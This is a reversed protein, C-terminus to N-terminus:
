RAGKPDPEFVGDPLLDIAFLMHFSQAAKGNVQAAALRMKTEDRILLPHDRLAAYLQQVDAPTAAVGDLTFRLVKTQGPPPVGKRRAAAVEAPPPANTETTASVLTIATGPALAAEVDAVVRALELPLGLRSQLAARQSLGSLRAEADRLRGLTSDAARRHGDLRALTAQSAAVREQRVIVTVGMAVVLVATAGGQWRLRRRRTVLRAYWAPLLDVEAMASLEDAAPPGAADASSATTNDDVESM